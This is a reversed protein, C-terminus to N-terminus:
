PLAFSVPTPWYMPDVCKGGAGLSGDILHPLYQIKKLKRKIVRTLHAFDALRRKLLLWVGEAPNLKRHTPPWGAGVTAGAGQRGEVRGVVSQFDRPQVRHEGGGTFM